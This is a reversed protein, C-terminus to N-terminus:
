INSGGKLVKLYIDEIKSGVKEPHYKQRAEASNNASITERLHKDEILKIIKEAVRNIDFRLGNRDANQRKIVFGNVSEKVIDVLAGADSCVVPLGMALAELVAVPFMEGYSLLCFIDSNEFYKKKEAPAVQGAFNVGEIKNNECFIRAEELFPGDGCVTLSWEPHKIRVIDYAALLEKVGKEKMVSSLFLINKTEKNKIGSVEGPRLLSDYSTTCLFVPKEFGWSLLQEKLAPMMVVFADASKYIGCMIGRNGGRYPFSTNTKYAWGHWYVLVKKRFIKSIVIYVSDRLIAKKSRDLSTNIHVIDPCFSVIGATFLWYDSIMRFFTIKGAAGVAGFFSHPRGVDVCRVQSKLFPLLSEIFSVIGGGAEKRDRTMLIKM